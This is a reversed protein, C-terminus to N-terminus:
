GKLNQKKSKIDSHIIFQVNFQLSDNLSSFYISNFLQFSDNLTEKGIRITDWSFHCGCFYKLYHHIGWAASVGTNAEVIVLDESSGATKLM